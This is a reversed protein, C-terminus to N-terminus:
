SDLEGGKRVLRASCAYQIPYYAFGSGFGLKACPTAVIETVNGGEHMLKRFDLYGSTYGLVGHSRHM